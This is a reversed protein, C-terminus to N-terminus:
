ALSQRSAALAGASAAQASAGGHSASTGSAAGFVYASESHSSLDLGEFESEEDVRLDGFLARLVFLIALTAV